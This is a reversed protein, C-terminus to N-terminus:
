HPSLYDTLMSYTLAFMLFFAFIKWEQSALNLLILHFPGFGYLLPERPAASCLWQGSESLASPEPTVQISELPAKWESSSVPISTLRRDGLNGRKTSWLDKNKFIGERHTTLHLVSMILSILFFQWRWWRWKWLQKDYSPPVSPCLDTHNSFRSCIYALNNALHIASATIKKVVEVARFVRRYFPDVLLLNNQTNFSIMWTGYRAWPFHEM